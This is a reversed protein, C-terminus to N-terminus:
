WFFSGGVYENLSLRPEGDLAHYDEGLGNQDVTCFGAQCLVEEARQNDSFSAVALAKGEVRTIFTFISQLSLEARAAVKLISALGGAQDAVEVAVAPITGCALKLPEVALRAKKLDTVLIRVEGHDPGPFTLNLAKMDVGADSVASVVDLLRGPQNELSVTFLEIM